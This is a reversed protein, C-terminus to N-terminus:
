SLPILTSGATTRGRGLSTVTISAKGGKPRAVTVSTGTTIVPKSDTKGDTTVVAYAEAGCVAKWTVTSQQVKTKGKGTAKAPKVTVGSPGPVTAAVASTYSGIADRKRVTAGNLVEVFLESRGGGGLPTVALKGSKATSRGIESETGDATREVFRLEQGTIGAANWHITPACQSRDLGTEVQPEALVQSFRPAELLPGDKAPKGLIEVKYTGKKPKNLIFQASGQTPYVFVVAKGNKLGKGGKVTLSLGPGSVRADPFGPADGATEVQFPVVGETGRVAFTHSRKAAPAKGQAKKGPAKAASRTAKAQKAARDAGVSFPPPTAAKISTPLVPKLLRYPALDCQGDEGGISRLPDDFNIAGGVRVGFQESCAALITPSPGTLVWDATVGTGGVTIAGRGTGWYAGEHRVDIWIEAAGRVAFLSGGTPDTLGISDLKLAGVREYPYLVFGGRGIEQDWFKVGVSGTISLDTAIEDSLRSWAVTLDGDFAMKEAPIKPFTYAPSFPTSPITITTAKSNVPGVSLGLGLNFSQPSNSEWLDLPITGRIRQLYLGRGAPKNLGSATASLSKFTGWPPVGTATVKAELDGGRKDDDLSPGSVAKGKLFKVDFLGTFSWFKSPFDYGIKLDKVSAIPNEFKANGLGGLNGPSSASAEVGRAGFDNDTTVTIGAAFTEASKGAADKGFKNAVFDFQRAPDVPITLKFGIKSEGPKMEISAQEAMPYGAFKATDPVGLAENYTFKTIAAEFRIVGLAVAPLMPQSVAGFQLSMPLEDLGFDVTRAVKDFVIKRGPQPHFDIGNLRFEEDTEWTEPATLKFCRSRAVMSSGFDIKATCGPKEFDQTLDVESGPVTRKPEKCKSDEGIVTNVSPTVPCIYPVPSDFVIETKALLGELKYAGKADSVAETRWTEGDSDVQTARVKADKVPTGDDTKVFGTVDIPAPQAFNVEKDGGTTTEPRRSCGGGGGGGTDHCFSADTSRVRWHGAKVQVDYRGQANTASEYKEGGGVEEVIVPVGSQPTETIAGSASRKRSVFTGGINYTDAPLVAYPVNYTAAGAQGGLQIHFGVNAWGGTAATRKFTCPYSGAYYAVTQCPGNLMTGAGPFLTSTRWIWPGNSGTTYFSSLEANMTLTQNEGVRVVSPSVTGSIGWAGGEAPRPGLQTTAASAAPPAASGLLAVGLVVAAIRAAPSGPRRLRLM